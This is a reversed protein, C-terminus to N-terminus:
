SWRKSIHLVAARIGLSSLPVLKIALAEGEPNHVLAPMFLSLADHSAVRLRSRLPVDTRGDSLTAHARKTAEITDPM